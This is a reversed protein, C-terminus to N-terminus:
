YKIPKSVLGMIWARLFHMASIFLSIGLAGMFMSLPILPFLDFTKVVIGLTVMFAMLCYSRLSFMSFISPRTHEISHIHLLYRSTVKTFVLRTFVYAGLSSILLFRYISGKGEIIGEYGTMFVRISGFTWLSAVAFFLWPRPVPITLYRYSPSKGM